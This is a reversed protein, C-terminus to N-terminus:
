KNKNQEEWILRELKTIERPEVDNFDQLSLMYHVHPSELSNYRSYDLFLNRGQLTILGLTSVYIVGEVPSLLTTKKKDRM